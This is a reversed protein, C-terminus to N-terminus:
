MSLIKELVRIRDIVGAMVGDRLVYVKAHEQVALKFIVELIPTDESVTAFDKSMIDGVNRGTEHEFYKEFPDFDGVFAVSKLQTFFDPMGLKFLLDSTIEGVLRHQADVIGMADVNYQLMERVVRVLPLDPTLFVHPPRMVDQAQLDVGVDHFQANLARVLGGPTDQSVIAKLSDKDSALRSIEAMIKLLVSARTRSGVIMFVVSVKHRDTEGFAIPTPLVSVAMGVGPFGPVTAHPCAIGKGILTPEQNERELIRDIVRQVMEATDGDACHHKVLRRAMAKLLEPKKLPKAEITIVEPTILDSLKM